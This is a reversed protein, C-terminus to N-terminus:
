INGKKFYYYKAVLFHVDTYYYLYAAAYKSYQLYETHLISYYVAYSQM